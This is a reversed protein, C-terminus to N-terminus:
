TKGAKGSGFGLIVGLIIGAVAVLAIIPLLNFVTSSMPTIQNEVQNGVMGTYNVYVEDFEDAGDASVSVTKDLLIFSPTSWSSDSSNTCEVLVDSSGTPLYAITVSWDSANATASDYGTFVEYHLASFENTSTSIFSYVMVGIIITLLLAVVGGVMQSWASKNHIIRM